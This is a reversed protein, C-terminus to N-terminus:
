AHPQVRAEYVHLGAAPGPLEPRHLLVEDFGAERLLRQGQAGDAVQRARRTRTIRALVEHFARAPWGLRDLELQHHVEALFIGGGCCRLLAAVRAFVQRQAALPLYILIGEAVALTPARPLLLPGLARAYHECRVIDLAALRYRDPAGGTTRLIEAKREVMAPLDLDLSPLGRRAAALGRPSLGCALEVLQAPAREEVLADITRHRALNVEEVSPFGLARGAAFLPELALFLRRGFLTDFRWAEPLRHRAWVQATYHATFSIGSWPSSSSRREDADDV